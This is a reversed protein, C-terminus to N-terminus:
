EDAADSTYLLCVSYNVPETFESREGIGRIQYFKGRSSGTSYNVNPTMFLLDELHNANRKKIDETSLVSVSLPLNFPNNENFEASVIIEDVGLKAQNEQAILYSSNFILLLLFLFFKM